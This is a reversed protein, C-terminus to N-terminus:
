RYITLTEAARTVATYVWRRWDPDAPAEPRDLVLAVDRFTSGQAKHVSLVYGHDRLRGALGMSKVVVGARALEELDRFTGEARGVQAGCQIETLPGIEDEPFSVRARWRWPLHLDVEVDGEYVGRMGNMVPADNKLAVVLEGRKPPGDYGLHRRLIGNCRVRTKNTWSLAACARDLARPAWEGAFYQKPRLRIAGWYGSGDADVLPPPGLAEALPAGARLRHALGVIPSDEAQRHIKELRVDPSIVEAIPGGSMVPGLQGHDGVLLIPAGHAALDDLQAESLMSAEDVVVLAYPRDFGGERKAFGRVEETAEDVVPRYLLRHLTGCFPRDGPDDEQLSRQRGRLLLSGATEVGAASLKGRLVAAARGTLAAYAVLLPGCQRAIEGIVVSKGTGALGGLSFVQKNGSGLWSRVAELAAAQDPSLTPPTM